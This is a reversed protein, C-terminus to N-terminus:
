TGRKIKRQLRRDRNREHSLSSVSFDTIPLDAYASRVWLVRAVQSVSLTSGHFSFFLPATYTLRVVFDTRQTQDYRDTQEDVKTRSRAHLGVPKRVQRHARTRAHATRAHRRVPANTPDPNNKTETAEDDRNNTFIGSQM